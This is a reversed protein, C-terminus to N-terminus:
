VAEVQTNEDRLDGYVKIRGSEKLDQLIRDVTGHMHDHGPVRRINKISVPGHEAIHRLIAGELGGDPIYELIDGVQCGFYKCLAEITDAAYLRTTEHYLGAVTNRVLGTATAVDSINAKRAGMLISLHCKIM